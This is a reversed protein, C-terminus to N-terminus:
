LSLKDKPILALLDLTAEMAETSISNNGMFGNLLFRLEEADLMEVREQIAALRAAHDQQM